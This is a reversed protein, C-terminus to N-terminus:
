EKSYQGKKQFPAKNYYTDKCIVIVTKNLLYEM